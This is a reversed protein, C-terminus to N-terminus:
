VRVIAACASRLRTLLGDSVDAERDRRSQRARRHARRPENYVLFSDRKEPFFLSFRSLNVQQEDRTALLTRDFRATEYNLKDDSGAAATTAAISLCVLLAARLIQCRM